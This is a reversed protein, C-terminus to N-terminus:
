TFLAAAAIPRRPPAARLADLTAAARALPALPPLGRLLTEDAAYITRTSNAGGVAAVGDARAAHSSRQREFDAFHIAAGMGDGIWIFRAM